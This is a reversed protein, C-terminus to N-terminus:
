MQKTLSYLSSSMIAMLAFLATLGVSEFIFAIGQMLTFPVYWLKIQVYNRAIGLLMDINSIGDALAFILLAFGYVALGLTLFVIVVNWVNVRASRCYGFTISSWLAKWVGIKEKVMLVPAMTSFMALFIFPFLVTQGLLFFLFIMISCFAVRLMNMFTHTKLLFLVGPKCSSDVYIAPIAEPKDVCMRSLFLRIMTVYAILIVIWFLLLVLAYHNFYDAFITLLYALGPNQRQFFAEDVITKFHKLILESYITMSLTFLIQPLVMGFFWIYLVQPKSSRIFGIGQSIVLSTSIAHSVSSNPNSSNQM